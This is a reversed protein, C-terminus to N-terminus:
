GTRLPLNTMMANFILIDPNFTGAIYHGFHLGSPLSSTAEKASKWGWKCELATQFPMDPLTALQYLHQLLKAAYPNCVTPPHFPGELVKKFYPSLQRM